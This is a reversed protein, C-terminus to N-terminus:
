RLELRTALAALDVTPADDLWVWTFGQKVDKKSAQFRWPGLDRLVQSVLVTAHFRSPLIVFDIVRGRKQVEDTRELGARAITLQRVGSKAIGLVAVMHDETWRQEEWSPLVGMRRPLALRRIADLAYVDAKAETSLTRPDPLLLGILQQLRSAPIAAKARGSSAKLWRRVTRPSVEMAAAVAAVNLRGQPTTGYKLRLVRELRAKTWTPGRRGGMGPVPATGPGPDPVPSSSAARVPEALAFTVAM